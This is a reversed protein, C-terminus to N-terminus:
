KVVKVNTIFISTYRRCRYYASFVFIFCIYFVLVFIEVTTTQIISIHTLSLIIQGSIFSHCLNRTRSLTM